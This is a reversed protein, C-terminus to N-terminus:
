RGLRGGLFAAGTAAGERVTTFILTSGSRELALAPGFRCSLVTVDKLAACRTRAQTLLPACAAWVDVDAMVTDDFTKWDFSFSASTGCAGRLATLSEAARATYKKELHPWAKKEFAAVRGSERQLTHATLVESASAADTAEQNFRVRFAPKGPVYVEFVGSERESALVWDAGRHRAVYDVGARTSRAKCRVALGDHESDAGRLQLVAAASERPALMVVELTQGDKGRYVKLSLAELSEAEVAAQAVLLAFMVALRRAM